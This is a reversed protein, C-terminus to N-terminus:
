VITSVICQEEDPIEQRLRRTHRSARCGAGGNQLHEGLQAYTAWASAPGTEGHLVFDM